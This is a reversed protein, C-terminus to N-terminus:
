TAANSKAANKTPKCFPKAGTTKTPLVAQVVALAIVVATTTAMDCHHHHRHGHDLGIACDIRLAPLGQWLANSINNPSPSYNRSPKRKIKKSSIWIPSPIGVVRGNKRAIYIERLLIFPRTKSILNWACITSSTEANNDGNWFTRCLPTSPRNVFSPLPLSAVATVTVLAMWPASKQTIVPMVAPRYPFPPPLSVASPNELRATWIMTM